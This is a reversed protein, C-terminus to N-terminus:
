NEREKSILFFDVPGEYGIFVFILLGTALRGVGSIFSAFTINM